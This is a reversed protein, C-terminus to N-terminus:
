VNFIGPSSTFCPSEQTVDEYTRKNKQGYWAAHPIKTGLGPILGTGGAISPHLRLWQVVLSAGCRYKKSGARGRYSGQRPM